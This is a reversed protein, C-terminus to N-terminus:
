VKKSLIDKGFVKKIASIVIEAIWRRGADKLNKWRDYVLKTLLQVEDRRLPCGKSKVSENKRIKTASESNIKNDLINFQKESVM